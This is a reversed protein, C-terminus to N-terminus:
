KKSDCFVNDFSFGKKDSISMPYQVNNLVTEVDNKMPEIGGLNNVRLVLKNDISFIRIDGSGAITQEEFEGKVSVERTKIWSMTAWGSDPDNPPVPLKDFDGKLVDQLIETASDGQGFSIVTKETEKSKEKQLKDLAIVFDLVAIQRADLQKKIEDFSGTEM